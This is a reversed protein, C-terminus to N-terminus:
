PQFKQKKELAFKTSILNHAITKHNYFNITNYFRRITYASLRAYLHQISGQKISENKIHRGSSATIAHINTAMGM